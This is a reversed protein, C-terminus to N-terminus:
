KVQADFLWAPGLFPHRGVFSAPIGLERGLERIEDKFLERLPEVLKLGQAIIAAHNDRQTLFALTLKAPGL